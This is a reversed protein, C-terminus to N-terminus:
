NSWLHSTRQGVLPNRPWMDKRELATHWCDGTVAQRKPQTFGLVDKGRVTKKCIICIPLFLFLATSFFSGAQLFLTNYLLFYPQERLIKLPYLIQINYEQHHPWRNARLSFGYDWATTKSFAAAPDQQNATVSQLTNGKFGSDPTDECPNRCSFTRPMPPRSPFGYPFSM